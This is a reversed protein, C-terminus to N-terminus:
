RPPRLFNGPPLIQYKGGPCEEIKKHAKVLAPDQRSKESGGEHNTNM